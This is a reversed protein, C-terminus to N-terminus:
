VNAMRTRDSQPVLADCSTERRSQCRCTVCERHVVLRKGIQVELELFVAGRGNTATIEDATRNCRSCTM